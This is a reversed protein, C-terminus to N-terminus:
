KVIFKQGNKIYIGRRLLTTDTGVYRGDLTYIRGDQVAAPTTVREIATANPDVVLVEDLFFRKVPTFVLKAKGTGTVTVTFTTWQGAKMTVQAPDFTLTAGEASLKLTNGDTGWPAAKFTLTTTNATFNIEPTKAVGSGATNVGFRACKDAAYKKTATWGENDPDFTSSAISGSWQNGNKDASNGGTGSCKNFSEYFLYPGTPTVDGGGGGTSAYEAVFKFSITGDSNQTIDEVSSTMNTAMTNAKNYFKAAPQTDCNFKNNTNYPFPDTALGEGTLYKTGQWTGYQYENDAAVWTMRQHKPDDNPENAEWVNADYDVHLILLGCGYLESDWNVYQRNELLYFEDRNNKNYIVYANGGEQLSKMNTVTVDEDELVIPTIWGAMWREYSTYGAPVFGDGNYSGQDMLDWCDMGWGGSYDTDYFDPYGLCHSFEHCMTGIGEIKNSGNLESGCAYTNVYLNTGVQVPGSGDGYYNSSYLDYAHPWITNAAGGDAEGQGAYVVYVQDVEGDGDWDYQTWDSVYAKALEVAECVMEGPHQDQDDDDNAGYYAAAHSVTLPGIVDFDLEFQGRSQAKFYDAMSGVFDGESFGEENAIRKYLANNNAAKFKVDSFNVLLIIGKKQGTYSGVNGVRRTLRKMRNANALQRRAKANAVVTTADIMKYVGKTGSESYALGNEGLWYHGFEDGRLQARVETGDSLKLTKWLGPKAPVAMVAM